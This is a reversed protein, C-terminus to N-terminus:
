IILNHVPVDLWQLPMADVDGAFNEQSSNEKAATLLLCKMDTYSNDNPHCLLSYYLSTPSPFAHTSRKPLCCEETMVGKSGIDDHRECVRLLALPQWRVEGVLAMDCQQDSSASLCIPREKFM